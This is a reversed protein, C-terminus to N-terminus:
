GEIVVIVHRDGEGSLSSLGTVGGWGWEETGVAGHGCEGIVVVVKGGGGGGCERV